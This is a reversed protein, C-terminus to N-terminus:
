ALYEYMSLLRLFMNFGKQHFSIEEVRERFFEDSEVVTQLLVKVSKDSKDEEIVFKRHVSLGISNPFTSSEMQIKFSKRGDNVIYDMDNVM